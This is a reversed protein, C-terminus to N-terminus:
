AGEGQTDLIDSIIESEEATLTVRSKEVQQDAFRNREDDEAEDWDCGSCLARRTECAWCPPTMMVSCECERRDPYEYIRGTCGNRNCVDGPNLGESM